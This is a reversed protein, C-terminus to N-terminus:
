QQPKATAAAVFQRIQAAHEVVHLPINGIIIGYLAGKYRHSAPLPRAAADETLASLTSRARERCYDVYGLLEPRTFMRNPYSWTNDDFPKPPAWPVFDGSLDYDLCTLAHYALFWPTSGELGGHPGPRMPAEPWIDTEWLEDPCDALAAQLRQLADDFNWRMSTLLADAMDDTYRM